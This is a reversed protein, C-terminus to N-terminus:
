LFRAVLQNTGVSCFIHSEKFDENKTNNKDITAADVSPDQLGCSHLVLVKIVHYKLHKYGSIKKAKGGFTHKQNAGIKVFHQGM